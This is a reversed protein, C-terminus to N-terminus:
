VLEGLEVLKDLVWPTLNIIPVRLNNEIVCIRNRSIVWRSTLISDTDEYQDYIRSAAFFKSYEKETEEDSLDLSEIYERWGDVLLPISESSLSLEPFIHQEALEVLEFRGVQKRYDPLESPTTALLKSITGTITKEGFKDRAAELSAYLDDSVKIPKSM